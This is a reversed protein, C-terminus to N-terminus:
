LGSTDSPNVNNSPVPTPTPTVAPDPDYPDLAAYAPYIATNAYVIGTGNLAHIVVTHNVGERLAWDIGAVYGIPDCTTSAKGYVQTLKNELDESAENLNAAELYLQVSALHTESKICAGNEDVGYVFYFLAGGPYGAIELLPIALTVFPKKDGLQGDFRYGDQYDSFFLAYEKFDPISSNELIQAKLLERVAEESGYEEIFPTISERQLLRDIMVRLVDESSSGWPIGQFTIEEEYALATFASCLLVATMLLAAIRKM